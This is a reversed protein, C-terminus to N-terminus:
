DHKFGIAQSETAIKLHLPLVFTTVSSSVFLFILLPLYYASLMSLFAYFVYIYIVYLSSFFVPTPLHLLLSPFFFSLFLFFSLFFSFSIQSNGRGGRLGEKIGLM